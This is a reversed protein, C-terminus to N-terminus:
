ASLYDLSTPKKENESNSYYMANIRSNVSDWSCKQSILFSISEYM